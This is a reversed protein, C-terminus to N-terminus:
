PELRLIPTPKTTYDDNGPQGPIKLHGTLGAM